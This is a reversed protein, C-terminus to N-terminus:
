LVGLSHRWFHLLLKDARMNEAQRGLLLCMNTNKNKQNAAHFDGFGVLCCRPAGLFSSKNKSREKLSTMFRGLLFITVRTKPFCVNAAFDCLGKDCIM